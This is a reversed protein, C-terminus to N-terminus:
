PQNQSRPADHAPDTMRVGITKVDGSFPYWRCVLDAGDAQEHPLGRDDSGPHKAPTARTRRYASGQALPRLNIAWLSPLGPSATPIRDGRAPHAAVGFSSPAFTTSRAGRASPRLGPLAHAQTLCHSQSVAPPTASARPRTPWRTATGLAPA